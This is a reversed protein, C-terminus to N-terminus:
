PPLLPQPPPPHNPTLTPPIDMMLATVMCGHSLFLFVFHGLVRARPGDRGMCAWRVLWPFLPTDKWLRVLGSFSFFFTTDLRGHMTHGRSYLWSFFLRFFLCVTESSQRANPPTTCQQTEEQGCLVCSFWRYRGGAERHQLIYIAFSEAVPGLRRSAWSPYRSATGSTHHGLFGLFILARKSLCIVFPLLSFPNYAELWLPPIRINRTDSRAWHLLFASIGRATTSSPTTM